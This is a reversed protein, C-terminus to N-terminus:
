WRCPSSLCPSPGTHLGLSSSCCAGSCLPSPLCGSSSAGTPGTFPRRVGTSNWWRTSSNRGNNWPAFPGSVTSWPGVGPRALREAATPHFVLLLLVTICVVNLVMGLYIIPEAPALFAMLRAPRLLVVAGGLIVLVLKYTITVIALVVASVAM